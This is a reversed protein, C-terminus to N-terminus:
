WRLRLRNAFTMPIASSLSVWFVSTSAVCTGCRRGCRPLFTVSKSSTQRRLKMWSVSSSGWSTLWRAFRRWMRPFVPDVMVLVQVYFTRGSGPIGDSVGRWKRWMPKQRRACTRLRISSPFKMALFANSAHKIIEASRPSTMLLPAPSAPSCTGPIAGPQAYYTGQTVPDYIRKLLAAARRSNAGIVIRSPHLFDTVATGERLFEPNSVVDFMARPVGHREITKGIWEHTCVPVTSKEVLVTYHDISRAIEAAVAEMSSLDADGTDSQPTGVAIFLAECTRMADALNSTFHVNRNAHRRLLEPLYEEHIPVNGARLAEVKRENNDVCVAAHGMEAFGVAAVLGVYGSGVVAIRVPDIM